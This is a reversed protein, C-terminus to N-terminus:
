PIVSNDSFFNAQSFFRITPLPFHVHSTMSTHVLKTPKPFFLDHLLYPFLSHLYPRPLPWHFPLTTPDCQLPRQAQLLLMVNLNASLSIGTSANHPFRVPPFLAPGCFRSLSPVAAFACTELSSIKSWLLPNLSLLYSTFDM